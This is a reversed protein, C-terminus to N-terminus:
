CGSAAGNPVVRGNVCVLITRVITGNKYTLLTQATPVALAGLSNFEIYDPTVTGAAITLTPSGGLGPLRRLETVSTSIAQVALDGTWIGTNVPAVRVRLGRNIAELRAYSLARAIEAADAESRNRAILTTFGPVVMTVGIILVAVTILLEVLTFGKNGHRM